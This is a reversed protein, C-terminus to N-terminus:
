QFQNKYGFRQMTPGILRELSRRELDTFVGDSRGVSSSRVNKVASILRHDDVEVGLFDLIKELELKPRSVFDEYSLSIWRNRDMTAFSSSSMEVCQRWQIAALETVSYQSQISELGSIEPGWYRLRHESSLVKNIRNRLFRLLILPATSVPIFRVKKLLYFIEIDAVWRKSASAVVDLGNRFIFIYRAEPLISDVFPVRLSNACTKEVVYEVGYKTSVWNFKRRIYDVIWPKIASVPIDDSYSQMNGYRWIYNIEDCPWSGFDPLSCLADRLMNTGSRPAGIIIVPKM